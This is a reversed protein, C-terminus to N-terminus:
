HCLQIYTPTLTTYFPFFKLQRRFIKVSITRAVSVVINIFNQNLFGKSSPILSSM